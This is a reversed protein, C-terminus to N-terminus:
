CVWFFHDPHEVKRSYQPCENYDRGNQLHSIQVCSARIANRPQRSKTIGCTNIRVIHLFFQFVMFSEWQSFMQLYLLKSKPSQQILSIRFPSKQVGRHKSPPYLPNGGGRGGPGRRRTITFSIHKESMKDNKKCNKKRLKPHCFPFQNLKTDPLFQSTLILAM